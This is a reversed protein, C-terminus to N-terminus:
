QNNGKKSGLKGDNEVEVILDGDITVNTVKLSILGDDIFVRSGIKLVKGINAYDVYIM